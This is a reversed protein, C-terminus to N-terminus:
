SDRPSPSTYLLCIRAADTLVRGRERGSLAAWDKQARVAADLAAEVVRDTASHVTALVKGTAPYIVPIAAGETDDLYAGDVYHSATPIPSAPM